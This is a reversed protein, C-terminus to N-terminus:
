PAVRGNKVFVAHTLPWGERLFEEAARAATEIEAQPYSIFKADPEHTRLSLFAMLSRPNCTVWCSSFIAVPLVARAVGKAYGDRIMGDYAAYAARYTKTLVSYLSEVQELTGEQFKPRASTHGPAPVIMGRYCRALAKSPDDKPATDCGRVSALLVGQHRRPLKMVWDQLVSNM